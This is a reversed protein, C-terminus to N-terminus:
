DQLYRPYTTKANEAAKVDIDITVFPREESTLAMIEGDPGTLWGMGGLELSDDAPSIHNASLCYAGSVVSAARGGVLWKDLTARQTARPNAILHVGQRGYARAHEFFWLETCLLLGVKLPGVQVPKFDPDGRQYWNAEYFGEDNPLYYKCHVPQYGQQMDWLFAENLRRGQRELPRSSIVAAPALEALRPLWDEHAALVTQWLSPHFQPQRGFWPAFPMEPLLVLESRAQRVHAALREWDLSFQDSSDSLQTLTVKM